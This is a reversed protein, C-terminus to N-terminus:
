ESCNRDGFPDNIILGADRRTAARNPTATRAAVAQLEECWEERADGGGVDPGVVVIVPPIASGGPASFM